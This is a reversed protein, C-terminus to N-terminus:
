AGGTLVARAKTCVPQAECKPEEDPWLWCFCPSEDPLYRQRFLALTEELEAIRKGRKALEEDASRFPGAVAKQIATAHEVTQRVCAELVRTELETRKPPHNCPVNEVAHMGDPRQVVVGVVDRGQCRECTFSNM